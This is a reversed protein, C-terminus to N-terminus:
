RRNNVNATNPPSKSLIFCAKTRNQASESQSAIMRNVVDMIGPVWSPDIVSHNNASRIIHTASGTRMMLLALFFCCPFLLYWLSSALQVDASRTKCLSMITALPPPVDCDPSTRALVSSVSPNDKSLSALASLAAEQLQFSYHFAIILIAPICM